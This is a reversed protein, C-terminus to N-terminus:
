SSIKRNQLSSRGSRPASKETAKRHLIRRNYFIELAVREKPIRPRITHMCLICKPSRFSERPFPPASLGARMSRPFVYAFDWSFSVAENSDRHLLPHGAYARVGAAFAAPTLPLRSKRRRRLRRDDPASPPLPDSFLTAVSLSPSLHSPVTEFRLCICVSLAPQYNTVQARVPFPAPLQDLAM